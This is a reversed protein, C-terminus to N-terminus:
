LRTTGVHGLNAAYHLTIQNDFRRRILM